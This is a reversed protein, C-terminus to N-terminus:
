LQKGKMSAGLFGALQHWYDLWFKMPFIQKFAATNADFFWDSMDYEAGSSQYNDQDPAVRHQEEM